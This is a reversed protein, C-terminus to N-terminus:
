AYTFHKPADLALLRATYPGAVVSTHHLRAVARRRREHRFLELLAGGPISTGLPAAAHLALLAQESDRLDAPACLRIDTKKWREVLARAQAYPTTERPHAPNM